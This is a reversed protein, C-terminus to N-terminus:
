LSLSFGFGFLEFPNSRGRSEMNLMERWWSSGLSLCLSIDREGYLDDGEKTTKFSKNYNTTINSREILLLLLNENKWLVRMELAFM